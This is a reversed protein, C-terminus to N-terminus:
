GSGSSKSFPSCQFKDMSENMSSHWSNAMSNFNNETTIKLGKEAFFKRLNKYLREIMVKSHRVVTFLIDDRYLGGTIEPFEEALGYLLYIGVLDTVEASDKAGITIDWEQPRDKRSWLQEKYKFVKKLLNKM